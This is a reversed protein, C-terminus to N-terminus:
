EGNQDIQNEIYLPAEAMEAATLVKGFDTPPEEGPTWLAHEAYNTEADLRKNTERQSWEIVQAYKEKDAVTCAINTETM